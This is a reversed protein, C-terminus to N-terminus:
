PVVIFFIGFTIAGFISAYFMHVLLWKCRGWPTFTVICSPTDSTDSHNFVEDGDVGVKGYSSYDSKFSDSLTVRYHGTVFGAIGVYTNQLAGGIGCLGLLILLIVPM